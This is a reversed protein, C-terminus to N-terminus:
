TTVTQMIQYSWAGTGTVFALSGPSLATVSAAALGALNGYTPLPTGSQTPTYRVNHPPPPEVPAKTHRGFLVGAVLALIAVLALYRKNV